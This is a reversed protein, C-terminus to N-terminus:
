PNVIKYEFIILIKYILYFVKKVFYLDSVTVLNVKFLPRNNNIAAVHYSGSLNKDRWKKVKKNSHSSVVKIDVNFGDFWSDRFKLFEEQTEQLELQNQQLDNMYKQNNRELRKNEIKLGEIQEEQRETEAKFAIYLDDYRKAFKKELEKKYMEKEAELKNIRSQSKALNKRLEMKETEIIKKESKLNRIENKMNTQCKKILKGLKITSTTEIVTESESETSSPRENKWFNRLFLFVAMENYLVLDLAM